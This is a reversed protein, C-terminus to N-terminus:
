IIFITLAIFSKVDKKCALNVKQCLLLRGRLIYNRNWLSLGGRNRAGDSFLASSGLILSVKKPDFSYRCKLLYFFTM